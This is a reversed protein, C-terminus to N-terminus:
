IGQTIDLDRKGKCPPADTLEQRNFLAGTIKDQDPGYNFPLRQWFAPICQPHLVWWDMM